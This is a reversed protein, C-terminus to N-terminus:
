WSIVKDSSEILDVIHNYDTIEGLNIVTVDCLERHIKILERLTEDNKRKTIYLIKM